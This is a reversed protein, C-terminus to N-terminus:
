ADVLGYVRRANKSLVMELLRLADRQAIEDSEVWGGVVKFLGERMLQSGLLYLEPLGFADTSFLLKSFPTLELSQRILSLSAAGTYGVAAGTDLYVHPYVQSLYGAERIFPYNHLLMIPTGSGVTLRLFDTMKTPDCRNLVIDSDGYGVHMQIPKGADVAAWLIARLLAPEDLRWANANAARAFWREAAVRVEAETPRTPDFDLDFRYAIVSKVGVATELADHLRQAFTDFFDAPSIGDRAISEAIPELRAVDFARGGTVSALEDPDLVDDSRHGTDVLYTGIKAAQLLRRRVEAEGLAARTSLYEGASAHRAIGLEPACRARIAVGVPSDFVDGGPPQPWDSETALAAFQESSVEGRMIGHCHHDVVAASALHEALSEAADVPVGRRRDPDSVGITVFM